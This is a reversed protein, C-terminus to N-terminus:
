GKRKAIRREYRQIKQQLTEVINTVDEEQYSCQQQRQQQINMIQNLWYQSQQLREDEDRYPHYHTNYDADDDDFAIRRAQEILSEVTDDAKNSDSNTGPSISFCLATKRLKYCSSECGHDNKCAVPPSTPQLNRDNSLPTLFGNSVSAVTTAVLCCLYRRMMRTM